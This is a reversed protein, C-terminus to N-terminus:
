AWFVFGEVTQDGLEANSHLMYDTSHFAISNYLVFDSSPFVVEAIHNHFSAAPQVIEPQVESGPM